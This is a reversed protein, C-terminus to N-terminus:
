VAMQRNCWMSCSTTKAPGLLLDWLIVGKEDVKLLWADRKGFSEKGWNTETFGAIVYAGDFTQVVANAGDDEKGGLNTNTM